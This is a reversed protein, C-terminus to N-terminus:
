RAVEPFGDHQVGDLLRGAAKKGHRSAEIGNDFRTFTEPGPKSWDAPHQDTPLWEGWQKFLLPVGAAACQDRLSRAWDPHMPRSGHGSEGGVIVWDVKRTLTGSGNPEIPAATLWPSADVPGLLPEMSLFRVRAPVALLKPIDRDAEEQNVITAGLWVNPWPWTREGDGFAISTEIMEAANGIRKTLLLWDLNPTAHILDFLDGRWQRSVSNDFVDALSACFVRQRRGHEAFFSAHAANWQLPKRWNAPTTRRRPEGAGWTVTGSRKAWSEAYCHDCGPSVKMCGTWPNFTHDAWEISTNESV